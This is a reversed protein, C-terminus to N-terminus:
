KPAVRILICIFNQACFGAHFLVWIGVTIIVLPFLMMVGSYVFYFTPPKALHAPLGKIGLVRGVLQYAPDFVGVLRLLALTLGFLVLHFMIGLAILVLLHVGLLYAFVKVRWAHTLLLQM